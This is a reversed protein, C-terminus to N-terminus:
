MSRPPETRGAPPRLGTQQPCNTRSSRTSKPGVRRPDAGGADPSDALRPRDSLAPVHRQDDALGGDDEAPPARVARPAGGLRAGPGMATARRPRDTGSGRRTRLDRGLWLVPHARRVRGRGGRPRPRGQGRRQDDPRRAGRRRPRSRTRGGGACREGRRAHPAQPGRRPAVSRRRRLLPRRRGDLETPPPRRRAAAVLRLVVAAGVPAEQGRRPQDGRPQLVALPHRPRGTRPRRPDVGREPVGVPVHRRLPLRGSRDHHCRVRQGDGAAPRGGRGTRTVARPERCRVLPARRDSSAQGGPPRSVCVVRQVGWSRSHEGLVRTCGMRSCFFTTM